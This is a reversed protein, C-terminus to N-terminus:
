QVDGSNIGIGLNIYFQGAGISRALGEFLMVDLSCMRGKIGNSRIIWRQYRYHVTAFGQSDETLIQFQWNVRSPGRRVIGRVSLNLQKPGPRVILM